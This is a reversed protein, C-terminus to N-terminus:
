LAKVLPAFDAIVSVIPINGFRTAIKKATSSKLILPSDENIASRSVGAKLKKPIGVWSTSKKTNLGKVPDPLIARRLSIKVM